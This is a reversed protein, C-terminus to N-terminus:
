GKEEEDSTSQVAVILSAYGRQRCLNLGLGVIYEGIEDDVAQRNAQASQEYGRDEGSAHAGDRRRHGRSSRNDQGIIHAGEEQLSALNGVTQAMVVWFIMM